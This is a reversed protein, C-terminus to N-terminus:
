RATATTAGAALTHGQVDTLGQWRVKVTAGSTLAGDALALTVVGTPGYAASEVVVRAGSVEVTYHTADAAVDSDLGATFSLELASTSFTARATSLRATAVVETSAAIKASKIVFANVTSPASNGAKDTATARFWYIGANLTPLTLSWNTTGTTLRENNAANYTASWGNGTWYGAPTTGSASRHLLGTVFAVGSGTDTATGTATTLASLTPRNARPSSVHTTPQVNDIVFSLAPSITINGANDTATARVLYKGDALKPLSLTWSTTGTVALENVAPNFTPNFDTGNYFGPPSVRQLRVTVKALGSGGTDNATGTIATLSKFSGNIAPNFVTITPAIHDPTGQIFNIGVTSAANVVVTRSTPGFTAGAGTPTVVYTGPTVGTFSFQGQSNTVATLPVIAGSSTTGTLSVKVAALGVGGLDTVKGSINYIPSVVTVNTHIDSGNGNPSIALARVEYVGPETNLTNWIATYEGNSVGNTDSNILIWQPALTMSWSIFTGSDISQADAVELSYTGSLPKGAIPVNFYTTNLSKQNGGVQDQLITRSGDPAILTVRLDGVYNHTLNVSVSAEGINGPHGSVVHSSTTLQGDQLPQNVLQTFSFPPRRRDFEVRKVISDDTTRARLLYQGTVTSNSAPAYLTVGIPTVTINHHVDESNATSTVAVARVEYVGPPTGTAPGTHWITTWLKNVPATATGFKVWPSSFTLGWENLIGSEGDYLNQPTITLTYNGAISKGQYPLLQDISLSYNNNVSNFSFTPQFNAPTEHLVTRTGDPATFTVDLYEPFSYGIEVQARVQDVAGSATVQQSDTTPGLNSFIFNSSNIQAPIPLNPTHAFSVDSQQLRRSFEVRSVVADNSTKASVVTDGGVMDNEAPKILTVTPLVTSAASVARAANVRGYGYITSHGISNYAANTADIKDATNELIDRVQTYSLNPNVSLVLAAVGAVIASSASTGQLNAAGFTFNFFNNQTTDSGSTYNTADYGVTGTRDTSVYGLSGGEGPASLALAQGTESFSAHTDQNTSTGVAIVDPNSAYGNNDVTYFNNFQSNNFQADNGASFTVVCGLGGRGNTVAYHIARRVVDPLVAKSGYGFNSSFYSSPGWSNNIVSAGNQVAFTFADAIDQETVGFAILRIPLIKCNPAVGSVGIGNSGVAGILGAVLTGHNESAGFDKPRPDGDREVADFGPLINAQLDEHDVDIGTDIVAIITSPNGLTVNWAAEAKIDAGPTGGGQGTNNLHWQQPFLPDNPVFHSKMPWIYNPHSFLVQPQGYLANAAGTATRNPNTVHAVYGNPAYPGLPAGLSAGQQALLTAAQTPSIGPKFQILFEDTEVIPYPSTGNEFVRVTRRAGQVHNLQAVLKRRTKADSNADLPLVVTNQRRYTLATQQQNVGKRHTFKAAVQTPSVGSELEVGAWHTSPQLPYKMGSSYYFTPANATAATRAQATASLLSLASLVVLLASTLPKLSLRALSYAGSQHIAVTPKQM